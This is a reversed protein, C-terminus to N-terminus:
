YTSADAEYRPADQAVGPRRWGTWIIYGAVATLAAPNVIGSLKTESGLPFYAKPILLLGFTATYFLDQRRPAPAANLFLVAPLLLFVLKYDFSVQPLVMTLFTLLYVQKWLERERLLIHALVAAFIAAAALSYLALITGAHGAFDFRVVRAAIKVLSLYSLSGQHMVPNSVYIENFAAMRGQWLEYSRWLGGPYLAMAGVTLVLTLVGTLAAAAYRRRLLLLVGFAGPYAKMAIAVALPIASWGYRERLFLSFFMLTFVLVLQDINGRDIIYLTGSSLLAVVATAAARQGHRLFALREWCFHLLSSVFAAVMIAYGVQWALGSVPYLPVYAFPFYFSWKGSLPSGAQISELIWYFDSFRIAPNYLFTNGPYEVGFVSGLVAHYIVAGLLGIVIITCLLRTKERAQV